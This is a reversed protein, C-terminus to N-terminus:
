DEDKSDDKMVDDAVAASMKKVTRYTSNDPLSDSYHKLRQSVKNRAKVPIHIDRLVSLLITMYDSRWAGSELIQLIHEQASKKSM